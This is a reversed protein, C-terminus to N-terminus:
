TLSSSNRHLNSVNYGLLLYRKCPPVVTFRSYVTTRLLQPITKIIYRSICNNHATKIAQRHYAYATASPSTM